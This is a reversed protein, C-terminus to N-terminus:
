IKRRLGSVTDATYVSYIMLKYGDLEQQNLYFENPGGSFGFFLIRPGFDLPCILDLIGNSIKLAKFKGQFLTQQITLM